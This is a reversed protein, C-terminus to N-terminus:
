LTERCNQRGLGRLVFGVLCTAFDVAFLNNIVQDLGRSHSSCKLKFKGPGGM